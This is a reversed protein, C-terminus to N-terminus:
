LRDESSDISFAPNDSLNPVGKRETLRTFQIGSTRGEDRSSFTAGDTEHLPNSQYISWQSQGKRHNQYHERDSVNSLTLTSNGVYDEEEEDLRGSGSGHSGSHDSGGDSSIIFRKQTLSSSSSSSQRPNSKFQALGRQFISGQAPAPAPRPAATLPDNSHTSSCDVLCSSDQENTQFLFHYLSYPFVCCCLLLAFFIGIIAGNSLQSPSSSSSSSPPSYAPTVSSSIQYTGTMGSEMEIENTSSIMWTGTSKDTVMDGIAYGPTSIAITQSLSNQSDLLEHGNWQVSRVSSGGISIIYWRIRSNTPLILDQIPNLNGYLYGNFSPMTNLSIFTNNYRVTEQSSISLYTELNWKLLRNLHSLTSLLPLPTPPDITSHSQSSVM